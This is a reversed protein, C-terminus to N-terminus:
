RASKKKVELKHKHKREELVEEVTMDKIVLPFGKQNKHERSKDMDFFFAATIRPM